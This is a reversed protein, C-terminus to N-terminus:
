SKNKKYDEYTFLQNNKEILLYIKDDYANGILSNKEVYDYLKINVDDLNGYWINFGDVGQIIVTKQYYEKDGIFVAVGSEIAGIPLNKSVKFSEGDYYKHVDNNIIDDSIVSVIEKDSKYYLFEKGLLNKTLLNVKVFNFSKNFINNKLSKIMSPSFKNVLLLTMVFVISVLTKNTIKRFFIKIKKHHIKIM